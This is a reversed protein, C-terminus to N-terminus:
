PYVQRDDPGIMAEIGAESPTEDARDPLGAGGMVVVLYGAPLMLVEALAPRVRLLDAVTTAVFERAAEGGAGGDLGASGVHWGSDGAPTGALRELYYAGSELAGAEVVVREERGAAAPVTGTQALVGGHPGGLHLGESERTVLRMTELTARVALRPTRRRLVAFVSPPAPEDASAPARPPAGSTSAGQAARAAAYGELSKTMRDLTLMASPLDRSLADMLPQIAGKYLTTERELVPFWTRIRRAKELAAEERERARQAARREVMATPNTDGIGSLERRRVEARAAEAQEHRQRAQAQWYAVQDHRLWQETRVAEADAEGVAASAEDIFRQIGAKLDRLADVSTVRAAPM